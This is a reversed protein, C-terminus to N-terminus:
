QYTLIWNTIFMTLHQEECIGAYGQNPHTSGGRKALKGTSQSIGLAGLERLPLSRGGFQVQSNGKM